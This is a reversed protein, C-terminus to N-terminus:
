NTDQSLLALLASVDVPKTFHHNFGAAAAKAKDDAQGWGSLAILLPKTPNKRRLRSAVEYGNLGPMGIDLIAADPEFTKAAEIAAPGDEATVVTHGDSELLFKLMERGDANDDAVLVKLPVAARGHAPTDAPRADAPNELSERTLGCTYAELKRSQAM